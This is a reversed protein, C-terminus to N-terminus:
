NSEGICNRSLILVWILFCNYNPDFTHDILEVGWHQHPVSDHGMQRFLQQPLIGIMCIGM